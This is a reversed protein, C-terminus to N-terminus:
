QAATLTFTVVVQEGPKARISGYSAENDLTYMFKLPYGDTPETGSYCTAINTVVPVDVTGIPVSSVLTGYEGIFNANPPLVALQLRTGEPVTGSTVQASLQRRSDSSIVCSILLRGTSDSKSAEISMGAERQNLQLNVVGDNAKILSVETVGLVLTSSATNNAPNIPEIPEADQALAQFCSFALILISIVYTKWSRIM